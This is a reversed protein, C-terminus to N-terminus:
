IDTSYIDTQFEVNAVNKYFTNDLEIIKNELDEREECLKFYHEKYTKNIPYFFLGLIFFKFVETELEEMRKSTYLRAALLENFSIKAKM